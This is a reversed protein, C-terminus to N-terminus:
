NGKIIKIRDDTFHSFTIIGAEWPEQSNLINILAFHKVFPQCLFLRLIHIRLHESKNEADTIQQLLLVIM